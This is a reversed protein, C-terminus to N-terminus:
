TFPEGKGWALVFAKLLLHSKTVNVSIEVGVVTYM